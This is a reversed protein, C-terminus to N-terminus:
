RRGITTRYPMQILHSQRANPKPLQLTRKQTKPHTHRRIHSTLWHMTSMPQFLCPKSTNQMSIGVLAKSCHCFPPNTRGRPAPQIKYITCLPGQIGLQFGTSMSSTVTRALTRSVKRHTCKGISQVFHIHVHKQLCPRCLFGQRYCVCKTTYGGLDCRGEGTWRWTLNSGKM